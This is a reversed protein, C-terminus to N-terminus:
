PIQMALKIDDVTDIEAWKYKSIDCYGLEFGDRLVMEVLATEYWENYQANGVKISVMRSLLQAGEKSLHTIGAYEGDWNYMEKGMMVVRDNLTAVKYDAYCKGMDVLVADGEIALAEKIVGEEFVIDSNLILVDGNLHERAFWLSAISNSVHCFPNDYETVIQMAANSNAKIFRIMREIVTENGVKILCKPFSLGLRTGM